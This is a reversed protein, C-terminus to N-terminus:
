SVTTLSRDEPINLANRPKPYTKAGIYPEAAFFISPNLSVESM